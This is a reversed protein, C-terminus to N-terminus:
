SITLPSVYPACRMTGAGARSAGKVDAAAPKVCGQPAEAIENIVLSKPGLLAPEALLGSMLKLIPLIVFRFRAFYRRRAYSAPM